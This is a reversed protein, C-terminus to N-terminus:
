GRASFSISPDAVLGSSGPPPPPPPPPLWGGGSTANVTANNQRSTLKPWGETDETPTQPPPPPAGAEERAVLWALPVCTHNAACSPADFLIRSVLAHGESSELTKKFKSLGRAMKALEVRLDNYERLAAAGVASNATDVGLRNSSIVVDCVLIAVAVGLLTMEVRPAWRAIARRARSMALLAARLRGRPQPPVDEGGGGGAGVEEDDDEEERRLRMQEDLRSEAEGSTDYLRAM